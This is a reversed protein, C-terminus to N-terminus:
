NERNVKVYEELSELAIRANKWLARTVPDNFVNYSCYGTVAYGIGENQLIIYADDNSYNTELDEEFVEPYEDKMGNIYEKLEM